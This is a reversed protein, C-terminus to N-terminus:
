VWVCVVVASLCWCASGVSGINGLSIAVSSHEDGLAKREIALAQQMYDLVM